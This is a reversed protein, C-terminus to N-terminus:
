RTRCSRWVEADRAASGTLAEDEPRRGQLRMGNQAGGSPAVDYGFVGCQPGPDSGILHDRLSDSLDTQRQRQGRVPEPELVGVRGQRVKEVLAQLTQAGLEGLRLRGGM